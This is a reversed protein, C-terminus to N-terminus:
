FDKKLLRGLFENILEPPEPSTTTYSYDGDPSFFLSWVEGGFSFSTSIIDGNKQPYLLDINEGCVEYLLKNASLISIFQETTKVEDRILGYWLFPYNNKGEQTKDIKRYRKGNKKMFDHPKFNGFPSHSWRKKLM